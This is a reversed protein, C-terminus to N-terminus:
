KDLYQKVAENIVAGISSKEDNARNRLSERLWAPAHFSILVRKDMEEDITDALSKKKKTKMWEEAEDSLLPRIIGEPIAEGQVFLFYEGNKKRYMEELWGGGKWREIMQATLRSYRRRRTEENRIVKVKSM